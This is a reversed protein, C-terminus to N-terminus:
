TVHLKSKANALSSKLATLQAYLPGAQKGVVAHAALPQCQRGFDELQLQRNSIEEDL